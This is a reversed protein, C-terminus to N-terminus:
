FSLVVPKIAAFPVPLLAYEKSTPRPATFDFLVTVTSATFLSPETTFVSGTLTFYDASLPPLAEDHLLAVLLRCDDVRLLDLSTGGGAGLRILGAPRVPARDGALRFDLNM